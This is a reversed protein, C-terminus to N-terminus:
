VTRVGSSPTLSTAVPNTAASQIIRGPMLPEIIITIKPMYAVTTPDTLPRITGRVLRTPIDPVASIGHDVLKNM